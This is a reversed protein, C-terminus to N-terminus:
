WGNARPCAYDFLSESVLLNILLALMFKAQLLRKLDVPILRLNSIM